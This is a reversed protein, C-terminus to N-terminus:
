QPTSQLEEGDALAEVDPEQELRFNALIEAPGLVLQFIWKKEPLTLDEVKTDDALAKKVIFDISDIMELAKKVDGRDQTTYDRLQRGNLEEYVSAVVLPTLIEPMKNERLLEVADVTRLHVKRHTNPLVQEIGKGKMDRLKDAVTTATKKAM